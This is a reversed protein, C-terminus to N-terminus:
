GALQAQPLVLDESGFFQRGVPGAIIADGADTLIM